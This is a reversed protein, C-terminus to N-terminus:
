VAGKARYATYLQAMACSALRSMVGDARSTLVIPVRAGLAIGASEAGALYILQKAIMNGAELDPVVLIDADGAVESRIGKAEAATRSVANDFALPGDIIGGTLQGRDLMKCLAAAEITSPIKPYVTEVASLIAVKPRAIGLAHALDIANQVIDRKTDLDPFINIAADTVFLPKPYHPVDLAFIHSIRRETRLGTDRDVVPAMLEDTHLKGKMLVDAKGERVLAVAREAAAHSHPADVIEVGDLNQGADKAVAVIKDHPGVLIPVVMGQSAAELAGTLSLADCPHVVAMRVPPLDHTAALLDRYRAGQEHLHVEPLVARPRRVKETPAIVVAQGEIVIEGKQNTCRCDLTLQKRAADKAAVTVRVEVTDGIGVPHRFKLNQDLYITGPGPLETGLVASILAGGWMGHAIVKHFMDSHAYEEDVHAPNVDGSMVAFLEIDEPKLTRVIQATDGIRIEDFTRNEIYQM